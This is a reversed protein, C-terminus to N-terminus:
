EKLFGKLGANRGSEIHLFYLGSQLFSVDIKPSNGIITQKFIRQGQANYLAIPTETEPYILDVQIFTQAPNPFVQLPADNAEDLGINVGSIYRVLAFDFNIGNQTIGGVVIRGDPQVALSTGYDEISGIPTIVKGSGNFNLDLTGDENYRALAFDFTSIDGSYGALLIKNDPQLCIAKGVDSDSGMDTVVFGDFSFGTDPSGDSNFQAIAFNQAGSTMASGGVIIKGDARVLVDYCADEESGFMFIKKGDMDFGTDLTGDTNYRVLAVDVNANYSTGAVVIKGDPQIAVAWARDSSAGIATTVKGDISFTLDPTGDTNLRAVAFLYGPSASYGVVVIKGDSQIAIDEAVDYDSGIPIQIAGTSNFSADLTGNSNYRVVVFDNDIGNNTTGCCVIKGDPQLAVANLKDDYSSFDTVVKGGVGFTNDPSGDPNYRALAFTVDVNDSTYGVAIIKGDTQVAIDNLFDYSDSKFYTIVKGDADFDSDLTGPQAAASFTLGITIAALVYIQNRTKM